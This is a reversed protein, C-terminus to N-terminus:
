KMAREDFWHCKVIERGVNEVVRSKKICVNIGELIRKGQDCNKRLLKLELRIVYDNFTM